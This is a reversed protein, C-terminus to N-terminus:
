LFMVVQLCEVAEHNEIYVNRHLLQRHLLQMDLLLHHPLHLFTDQMMFRSQSLMTDVALEDLDVISKEQDDQQRDYVREVILFEQEEIENWKELEDQEQRLLRQQVDPQRLRGVM